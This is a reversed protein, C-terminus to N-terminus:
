AKRMLGFVIGFVILGAILVVVAGGVTDADTGAQEVATIAAATDLANATGTLCLAGFATAGTGIKKLNIQIFDIEKKLFNM